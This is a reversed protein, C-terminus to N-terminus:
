LSNSYLHYLREAESKSIGYKDAAMEYMYSNLEDESMDFMYEYAIDSCYNWVKRALEMDNSSNSTSAINDNAYDSAAQIKKDVVDPTTDYADAIDNINTEYDDDEDFSSEVESDESIQSNSDTQASGCGSLCFVASLLLVVINIKKCKYIDVVKM